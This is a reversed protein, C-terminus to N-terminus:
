GVLGHGGSERLDEFVMFMGSKKIWNQASILFNFSMEWVSHIAGVVM